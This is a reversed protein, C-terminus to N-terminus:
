PLLSITDSTSNTLFEEMNGSLLALLYFKFQEASTPLAGIGPIDQLDMPLGDDTLFDQMLTGLNQTLLKGPDCLFSALITVYYDPSM